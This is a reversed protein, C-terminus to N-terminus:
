RMPRLRRSRRSAARRFDAGRDGHITVRGGAPCDGSSDACRHGRSWGAVSARDCGHTISRGAPRRCSCITADVTMAASASPGASAPSCARRPRLEPAPILSPSLPTAGAQRNEDAAADKTVAADDSFVMSLMTLRAEGTLGVGPSSATTLGRSGWPLSLRRRSPRPLPRPPLPRRWTRGWAVTPPPRRRSCSKLVRSRNRVAAADPPAPHVGDSSAEITMASEARAGHDSPVLIRRYAVAGVLGALMLVGALSAFVPVRRSRASGHGLSPAGFLAAAVEPDLRDHAVPVADEPLWGADHESPSVNDAKALRSRPRM